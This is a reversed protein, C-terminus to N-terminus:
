FQLPKGDSGKIDTSWEKKVLEVVNKPMPIYDLQKAAEDGNQYAWDFFKLATTSSAPDKDETAM